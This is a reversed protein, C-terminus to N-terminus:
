LALPENVYCAPYCPGGEALLVHKNHRRLNADLNIISIARTDSLAAIIRM